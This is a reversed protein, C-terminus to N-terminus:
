FALITIPKLSQKIAPAFLFDAVSFCFAKKNYGIILFTTQIAGVSQPRAIHLNHRTLRQLLLLNQTTRM